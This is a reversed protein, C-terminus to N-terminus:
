NPDSVTIQYSSFENNGVADYVTTKLIYTGPKLSNELEFIVSESTIPATKSGVLEEDLFLLVERLPFVSSIRLPIKKVEGSFLSQM